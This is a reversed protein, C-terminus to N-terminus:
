LYFVLIATLVQVEGFEAKKYKFPLVSIIQGLNRANDLEKEMQQENEFKILRHKM